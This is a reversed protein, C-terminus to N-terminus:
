MEEGFDGADADAGTDGGCADANDGATVVARISGRARTRLVAATIHQVLHGVRCM